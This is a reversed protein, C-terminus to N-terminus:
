QGHVREPGIRLVLLRRWSNLQFGYGWFACDFEHTGAGHHDVDALGVLMRALTDGARTMMREAADILIRRDAVAVVHQDEM